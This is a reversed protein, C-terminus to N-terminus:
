GTNRRCRGNYGQLIGRASLIRGSIVAACRMAATARIRRMSLDRRRWSRCATPRVPFISVLRKGAYELRARVGALRIDLVEYGFVKCEEMWIKQRLDALRETLRICAPIGNQEAEALYDRDGSHYSDHIRIGLEAKQELLRALVEYYEFLM